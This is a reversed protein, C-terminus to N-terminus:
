RSGAESDGEAGPSTLALFRAAALFEAERLACVRMAEDDDGWQQQQFQEDLRSAAFIDAASALGDLHAIALVASGSITILPHLAALEFNSRELLIARVAAITAAPQEVHLIGSTRRFLLRRRAEVQKLLPEWIAAQRAVLASPEDARYCVLDFAAHHVLPSVFADRDTAIIDTAANALATLPMSSPQFEAGAQQWEGAIAEALPATPLLLPARAPTNLPRGDLLIQWGDGDPAHLATKWFRKM